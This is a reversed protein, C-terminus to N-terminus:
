FPLDENNGIEEFEDQPVTYANPMYSGTNATAQGDSKSDVFSAEDVNVETAFRKNGNNDTWSRTQINGVICISSGKKFYRCIFEATKEWAVCTIFDVAQEGEKQYKRNVAINFSCVSTGGTTQKLEPDASIRGGLIVKNLNLNAM